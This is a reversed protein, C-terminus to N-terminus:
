RTTTRSAASWKRISSFAVVDDANATAEIDALYNRLAIATANDDNSSAMFQVYGQQGQYMTLNSQVQQIRNIAQQANRSKGVGMSTAVKKGANKISTVFRGIGESELSTFSLLIASSLILTVTKKM